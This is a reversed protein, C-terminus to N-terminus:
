GIKSVYAVAEEVSARFFVWAVCVMTFTWAMGLLRAPRCNGEAITELTVGTPVACLLPLFLGAHIGGWVIFTWNAGHM